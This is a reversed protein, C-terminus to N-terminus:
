ALGLFRSVVTEPVEPPPSQLAALLVTRMVSSIDTSVIAAGMPAGRLPAPVVEASVMGHSASRAAIVLPLRLDFACYRALRIAADTEELLLAGIAGSVFPRWLPRAAEATPVVVLDVRLVDSVELRGLTGFSSRVAHPEANVPTLGPLSKLLWRGARSGSGCVVVKTVLTTRASRGRM